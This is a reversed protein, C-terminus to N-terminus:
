EIRFTSKGNFFFKWTSVIKKRKILIDRIRNCRLHCRTFKSFKDCLFRFNFSLRDEMNSILLRFFFTVSFVFLFAFFRRETGRCSLLFSSSFFFTLLVFLKWAYNSVADVGRIIVLLVWIKIIMESILAACQFCLVSNM